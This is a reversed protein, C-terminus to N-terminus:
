VVIAHWDSGAGQDIADGFERRGRKGLAAMVDSGSVVAIRVEKGAAGCSGQRLEDARDPENESALQRTGRRSAAPLHGQWCGHGPIHAWLGQECASERNPRGPVAGARTIHRMIWPHNLRSAAAKTEAESTPAASDSGGCCGVALSALASTMPSSKGAGSGGI